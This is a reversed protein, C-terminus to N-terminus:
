LYFRYVRETRKNVWVDRMANEFRWLKNRIVTGWQEMNKLHQEYRVQGAPTARLKAEGDYHGMEHELIYVMKPDDSFVINVRSLSSSKSL